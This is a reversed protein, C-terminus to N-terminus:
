TVVTRGPGGHSAVGLSRLFLRHLPRELWRYCLAAVLGCALLAAATMAAVAAEDGGSASLRPWLWAVSWLVYMHTLYLSYSADGCFKLSRPVRLKRVRELSICGYVILAAATGFIAVRALGYHMEQPYRMRLVSGVATLTVLGLALAAFGFPMRGKKARWGIFCGAIFELTLPSAFLPLRLNGRLSTRYEPQDFFPFLGLTFAGWGALAWPLLRCPLAILGAFALYFYMEFTLTWGVAVVPYEAQPWLIFSKLLGSAAFKERSAIGPLAWALALVAVTCVWYLPYIRAVRRKIFPAIERSEGLRDYSSYVMVVGSIVFFLDVGAFGIAEVFRGLGAHWAHAEQWGFATTRALHYLLVMTAAVARLMQVSLLADSQRNYPSEITM